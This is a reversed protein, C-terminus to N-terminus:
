SASFSLKHAGTSGTCPWVCSEDMEDGIFTPLDFHGNPLYDSFKTWTAAAISAASAINLNELVRYGRPNTFCVMTPYEGTNGSLPKCFGVARVDIAAGTGTLPGIPNWTQGGDTSLAARVPDAASEEGINYPCYILHGSRGPVAKIPKHNFDVGYGLNKNGADGTGSTPVPNDNATIYGAMRRTFTHGGDTSRWVGALNAAHGALTGGPDPSPAPHPTVYLYIHGNTEDVVLPQRLNYYQQSYFGSVAEATGGARAAALASIAANGATGFDCAVPASVGDCFYPQRDYTGLWVVEGKNRMAVCGAELQGGTVTTIIQRGNPVSSGAVTSPGYPKMPGLPHDAYWLGNNYAAVVHFPDDLAFTVNNGHYLNHKNEPYHRTAYKTLVDREDFHQSGRDQGVFLHFKKPTTPLKKHFVTVMSEIGASVSKWTYQGNVGPTLVTPPNPLKWVGIGDCYSLGNIAPDWDLCGATMSYQATWGHWPIKGGDRWPIGSVGGNFSAGGNSSYALNGNFSVWVRSPNSPDSAICEANDIGTATTWNTGVCRHVVNGALLTVLLVGARTCHIHYFSTPSNSVAAFSAGGDTSRYFTNGFSAVWITGTRGSVAASSRDFSGGAGNKMNTPTTITAIKSFSTGGNTTRQTGITADSTCVIFHNPDLPDWLIKKASKNGDKNGVHDLLTPFASQHIWPGSKGNVSKYLKGWVHVLILSSNTPHIAVEWPSGATQNLVNVETAAINIGALLMQEWETGGPAKWWAGPMDGSAVKTGDDSVSQRTM